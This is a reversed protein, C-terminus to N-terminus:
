DVEQIDLSSRLHCFAYKFDEGGGKLLMLYSNLPKRLKVMLNIVSYSLFPLNHSFIHLHNQVTNACCM